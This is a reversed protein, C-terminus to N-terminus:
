KNIFDSYRKVFSDEANEPFAGPSIYFGFRYNLSEGKKVGRPLPFSGFRGYDRYASYQWKEAKPDTMHQVYYQREGLKFTMAAWPMDIAKKVDKGAPLIYKASKNKSVENDARFHCGGHERDAGVNADGAVATLKTQLDILFAGNSAPATFNFTREEKLLVTDGNVWDIEVTLKAYEDSVEQKLIKKYTNRAQGKMHWLDAKTKDVSVKFGVFIGRHHPYKGGHGKTIMRKAEPDLPDVIHSYVKYTEDDKEKTSADREAMFRMLAKGKYSVEISKGPNETISFDAASLTLCTFILILLSLKRTM